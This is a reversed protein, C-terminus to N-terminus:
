IEGDQQEGTARTLGILIEKIDASGNLIERESLSDLSLLVKGGDGCGSSRARSIMPHATEETNEHQNFLEEHLKEGPRLGTFIIDMDVGPKYGYLSIMRRALDLIKVPEGMDLVYVEGGRSIAAAHLVLNVAEPITMFYRTVEPHTVRVPGGNQISEKFIPVVSGSSDLVNGFRVTTFKPSAEATTLACVVDEAIKKTMGMVNVPNVAKDTSVLLFSEVGFEKAKEAMLRTGVVNTRFSEYPNDEMLPVHKYAAAHLVIEPRHKDMVEHVRRENLVDGIISTVPTTAAPDKGALEMDIKFLSEEHREFLILNEPAFAAVQRSLESGISGGAGTIMVRKGSFFAELENLSEVSPARFLVDEPVLAKFDTISNRGTLVGKLGPLTKLPVGYQRLDKIVSELDIASIVPMAIILEEPAERDIIDRLDNRTGLVPVDRIKLGTKGSDDDILGVVECPYSQNNEIDRLLMEAADGAGIVIVRKSSKKETGREHFRRLMRVGGLLFINLVWDIFYISRPYASVDFFYRVILIFCITGFSVSLMISRLDRVSSYRWLGKNLSFAFLFVARLIILLPLYTVFLLLDARPVAGDFRVYFALF